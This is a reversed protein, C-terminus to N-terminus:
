IYELNLDGNMNELEEIEENKEDIIKLFEKKQEALIKEHESKSLGIDDKTEFM